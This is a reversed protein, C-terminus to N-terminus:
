GATRGTFLTNVLDRSMLDYLRVNILPCATTQRNIKKMMFLGTLVRPLNVWSGTMM